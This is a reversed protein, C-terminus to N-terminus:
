LFLHVKIQAQSSHAGELLILSVSVRATHVAVSPSPFLLWGWPLQPQFCIPVGTKVPLQHSDM